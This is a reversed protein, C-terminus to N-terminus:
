RGKSKRASMHVADAFRFAFILADPSPSPCLGTHAHEFHALFTEFEIQKKTKGYSETETHSTYVVKAFLFALLM